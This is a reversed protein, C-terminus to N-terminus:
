TAGVPHFEGLPTEELTFEECAQDLHEFEAACAARFTRFADESEWVDVTLYRDPDRRDQYLTTSRYGPADQFLLVWAGAPGYYKEFTANTGPRVRYTWAYVYPGAIVV